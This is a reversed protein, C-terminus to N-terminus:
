FKVRLGVGGRLNEGKTDYGVNATVGYTGSELGLNLDFKVNGRRDEKEGRLEYWNASTNAVRAKNNANAVRGLENEYAVGVSAKFAGAGFNHKYALETGIEPRVSLYDNSKVELKIEGSKERVKSVRGYELGIAVYPKFTFSESLRFESSLQNKLGLGYTHYKGKANFVEDVVLFRRNMKNYGAFIDGSITWNLSNNKDFPVSKFIGLKAQLQEEKSNGLDKFKFTNHVIGTYWGASEGLRVTEDEHVYAVGYANSKYDKIGATNTKYEGKAGFTKIKNSDKSLNSWENKLYNFEKDLIDGTAQVRQQTNAYQNGKMEDIAQAFLEPEGKGIQNLKNFLSEERLSANKAGYRQELGDMFNYTNKDKTFSTYPIKSLYVANFKGSSDQTGTAIWTLSGSNLNFKTKGNRSIKSIIKNYPNLINEGVKIDKSNTYSTAEIGFILNVNKLNTLHELGQIPNTFQRGSTDVYMGLSSARTLSPSNALVTNKVDLTTSGVTVESPRAPITDVLTPIVTKGKRTITATGNGPAVIEVGNIKKGTPEIRKTVEGESGNLNAPKTGQRTGGNALLIGTNGQGKIEITGYNKIIAGNTAVVGVIGDKTNNPTTRITGYNEGIASDTLYMGISDQGSLNIEAGVHNIAKSGSGAAYMGIGSEEVVNIKGYNEIHGTQKLVGNKDLYGAAMGISYNENSADSKGVTITPQSAAGAQGNIAKSTTSGIDRVNLIGVNGVGSSFDMNALNTINGSAYIGYNKNGTTRLPTNNTIIATKDSSYIFTSNNGLKTEDTSNSELVSQIVPTGAVPDAPIEKTELVYAFSNDGITMKAGNIVSAAARGSVFIGKSNNGVEIEGDTVNVDTFYSTANATTFIGVSNNGLKIKGTDHATAEGYIGYTNDGGIIDGSNSIVSGYGDKLIETYIGINPNDKSVSSKLNIVSGAGSGTMSTHRNAATGATAYIGIGGQDSNINIINNNYTHAGTTLMGIANNGSINIIGDNYGNNIPNFSFSHNNLVYMGVASEGDMNIVGTNENRLELSTSGSSFPNGNADIRRTMGLIGISDKGGVNVTGANSVRAGNSAYIGVSSGNVFNNEKEVNITAGSAVNIRGGDAFLGVSGVGVAGSAKDTRDVNVSTNSELNIEDGVYNALGVATQEGLDAIDRSSLIARVNNGSKLNIKARQMLLHRTLVYDNTGENAPNLARSKDYNSDINFAGIGDITAIKYNKAGSAGHVEAGGLYGSFFTGALTSFNLSPINKLSMISVNNSHAYFKSNALNITFPDSLVGSREFGTSKGYLNIKANRVDINGNNKTYLAYGNGDYDITSYKAQVNSTAGDSVIASGGNKVKMYLGNTLSTGNAVIQGGREAYLALGQNTITGNDKKGDIEIKSQNTQVTVPSTASSNKAYIAINKGTSEPKLKINLKGNLDVKTDDSYIAVTDRTDMNINGNVKVYNNPSAAFVAMNGIGNKNGKAGALTSKNVNIDGTYDIKGGNAYLAINDEGGKISINGDTAKVEGDKSFIGISKKAFKEIELQPVKVHLEATPNNLYIGVIEEALNEDGGAKNHNAEKSNVANLLSNEPVYAPITTNDKAGIVFRATNRDNKIGDGSNEIYLGTTNDGQLNIPKNMIFNSKQSLKGRADKTIFLGVSNRGYLNAEGDNIFSVDGRALTSSATFVALYGKEGYMSIKGTKNNAYIHQTGTYGSGTDPGYLFIANSHTKTNGEEYNMSIINGRNEVLNVRRGMNGAFTTQVYRIGTGGLEVTGRNVHYLEGGQDNKFDTDDTYKRIENFEETSIHGDAKLKDFKDTTSGETEFHIFIQGDVNNNENILSLKSNKGFYSYPIDELSMFFTPVDGALDINEPPEVGVDVNVPRVQIQGRQYNKLQIRNVTGGRRKLVEGKEVSTQYLNGDTNGIGNNTHWYSYRGAVGNIWRGPFDAFGSVTINPANVTPISPTGIERAEFYPLNFHYPEQNKRAATKNIIVPTIRTTVSVSANPEEVINLDTAGYKTSKLNPIAINKALPDLSNTARNTIAGESVKDGRGKYAGNWNNYMYNAGFQWSSWPSKVVQDGQEMLQVLELKLGKIEKGNEKRAENIKNQLNGISNRLNGKSTNIEETTPAYTEEIDSSIKSFTPLSGNNDASALLITNESKVISAKDVKTKPTAFFNSYMDNAGFQMNAWSAKLKPTAKTVKKIEKIEAKEKKVDTLIDKQKELEQIKNDDSFASTGKMLFLVALGVSYKVNEYRKAISRLNKEVTPLNNAM